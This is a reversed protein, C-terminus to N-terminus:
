RRKYVIEGDRIGRYIIGREILLDMVRLANEFSIRMKRQLFSLTVVKDDNNKLLSVAQTFWAEKNSFWYSDQQEVAIATFVSEVHIQKHQLASLGNMQQKWHSILAMTESDSIYPAQLRMPLLQKDRTFVLDGRGQLQEAGAEGLLLFSEDKSAVAFTIRNPFCELIVTTLMDGKVRQTCAILHIGVAQSVAVVQAFYKETEDPMNMMLDCLESVVIVIHPMPAVNTLRNYDEVKKVRYQQLVKLRTQSENVIWKLFAYFVEIHIVTPSFLHPVGNFLHLEVRMADVLFLRVQEPTTRILLTALVARIIM